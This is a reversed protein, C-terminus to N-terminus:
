ADERPPPAKLATLDDVNYAKQPNGDLDIITTMSDKLDSLETEDIVDHVQKKLGSYIDGLERLVKRVQRIVAPLDKPGVVILGVVGILLLESFGVDLM